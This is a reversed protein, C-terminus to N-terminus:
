NKWRRPSMARQLWSQLASSVLDRVKLHPCRPTSVAFNQVRNCFGRRKGETTVTESYYVPRPRTRLLAEEPPPLPRVQATRGAHVGQPHPLPRVARVVVGPQVGLRGGAGEEPRLHPSSCVLYDMVLAKLIHYAHGQPLDTKDSIQLSPPLPLRLVDLLRHITFSLLKRQLNNNESSVVAQVLSPLGASRRTVSTNTADSLSDFVSNLLSMCIEEHFADDPLLMACFKHLAISCGEIVGRHRCTILVNALEDAIKFLYNKKTNQPIDLVCICAALESLVCCGNKIKLWLGISFIQIQKHAVLHLSLTGDESDRRVGVSDLFRGIDSFDPCHKKKKKVGKRIQVLLVRIVEVCFNLATDVFNVVSSMQDAPFSKFAEKSISLCYELALLFGHINAHLIGNQSMDLEGEGNVNMKLISLLFHLVFIQSGDTFVNDKIYLKKYVLRILLAGAESNRHDAFECMDFAVTLVAECPLRQHIAPWLSHTEMLHYTLERIEDTCDTICPFIKLLTGDTLFNWFGQSQVVQIAEKVFKSPKEKRRNGQPSAVLVDFVSTLVGLCIRRRQYCSGPFTNVVCTKVLWEVFELQAPDLQIDGKGASSGRVPHAEKCKVRYEQVVSDRIRVLLTRMQSLLLQQFSTSDINLNVPLFKKLLRM